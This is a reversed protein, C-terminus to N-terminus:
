VQSKIFSLLTEYQMKKKNITITHTELEEKGIIGIIPIKALIQRRLKYSLTQNENDLIVRVGAQKLKNLIEYAYDNVADSVTILVIQVPSLWIPLRGAHHELLIGIFRELSGLIARHLIIPKVREGVSNIYSCNFREALNFDVQLTGIQWHRGIADCLTFEIKPGYFAGEGRNITYELGMDEIAQILAKESRDWVEDSGIRMEPRDSIKIIIDNFGFDKYIELAFECVKRSEDLLQSETCFIHADDQTFGRVRMLGHLAGSPEFRHVIGFESVKLPLDKYSVIGMNNFIQAAGPCSMPKIAYEKDDEQDTHVTFMYKRFKDWHGSKEWFVRNLIQPTNVEVYGLATQKDRIFNVLIQFLAWGHPHWFVCGPSEEQFHFLNMEKGLRRHDRKQAEELMTLYKQLDEETFWATGYIRQLMANKADGRWYAGSIKTLKFAKIYKSSIAHPGRCLDYFDNQYYVTIPDKLDKILELKYKEHQFLQLAEEKSYVKKVFKFNQKIINKMEQEIKELDNISFSEQYDIDYYFGDKIAPGIVINATPYLNKVAQALIHATDHRLIELGEQDDITIIQVTADDHIYDQLDSLTGNIKIALSKKALSPSIKNALEIGTIPQIFNLIKGSLLTINM